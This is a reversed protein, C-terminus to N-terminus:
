HKSNALCCLPLALHGFSAAALAASQRAICRSIAAGNSCGAPLGASYVVLSSGLPRNNPPHHGVASVLSRIEPPKRLVTLEQEQDSTRGVFSYYVALEPPGFEHHHSVPQGAWHM